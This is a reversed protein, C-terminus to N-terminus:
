AAPAYPENGESDFPRYGMKRLNNYNEALFAGHDGNGSTRWHDIIQGKGKAGARATYTTFGDKTTRSVICTKSMKVGVPDPNNEGGTFVTHGPARSADVDARFIIADRTWTSSGVEV